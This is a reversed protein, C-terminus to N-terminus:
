YCDVVYGVYVCDEIGVMLIEWLILWNVSLDVMDLVIYWGVFVYGYVLMFWFMVFWVVGIGQLVLVWFLVVLGVLLCVVLVCQGIVDIWICYGQRWSDFVLDCEYVDFVIGVQKLVQVFVLGGFGVGVIVVYIDYM